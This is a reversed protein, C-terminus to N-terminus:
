WTEVKNMCYFANHVNVDPKGQKKNGRTKGFTINMVSLGILMEM